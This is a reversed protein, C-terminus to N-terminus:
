VFPERAAAQLCAASCCAAASLDYPQAQYNLALTEVLCNILRLPRLARRLSRLSNKKAYRPPGAKRGKRKQIAAPLLSTTLEELRNGRQKSLSSRQQSRPRRTRM